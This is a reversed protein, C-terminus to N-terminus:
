FYRSLPQVVVGMFAVFRCGGLVKCVTLWRQEEMLMAEPVCVMNMEERDHDGEENTYGLGWSNRTREVVPAFDRESTGKARRTDQTAVDIGRSTREREEEEIYREDAM